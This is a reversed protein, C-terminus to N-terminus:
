DRFIHSSFMGKNWQVHNTIGQYHDHSVRFVDMSNLIDFRLCLHPNLYCKAYGRINLPRNVEVVAGATFYLFLYLLKGRGSSYFFGLDRRFKNGPCGNGM